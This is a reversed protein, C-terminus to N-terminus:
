PQAEIFHRMKEAVKQTIVELAFGMLVRPLPLEDAQYRSVLSVETHTSDISEFGIYGSMGKFHGWIVEWQLESRWDESVPTVRLVMRAQYGLAETVLYLQGTKADFSVDRFHNSVEKLKSYLQATKFCFDKSRSVSGAGSMLFRVQKSPADEQRVSVLVAREERIKQMLEPKKRWFPRDSVVVERKGILVAPSTVNGPITPIYLGPPPTGLPHAAFSKMAEAAVSPWSFVLASLVICWFNRGLSTTMSM